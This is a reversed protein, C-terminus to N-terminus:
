PAPSATPIPQKLFRIYAAAEDAEQRTLLKASVYREVFRDIPRSRDFYIPNVLLHCRGCHSIYSSRLSETQPDSPLEGAAIKPAFFYDLLCGSLSLCSLLMLLSIVPKRM